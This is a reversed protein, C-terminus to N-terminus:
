ARRFWGRVREILGRRGPDNRRNWESVVEDINDAYVNVKDSDCTACKVLFNKGMMLIEPMTGCQKCRWLDTYAM